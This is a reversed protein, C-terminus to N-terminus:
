DVAGVAAVVADAVRHDSGIMLLLQPLEHSTKSHQMMMMKMKSMWMVKRRFLSLVMPVFMVMMLLTLRFSLVLPLQSMLDADLVVVSKAAVMSMSILKSHLLQRCHHCYNLLHHIKTMMLPRGLPTIKENCNISM